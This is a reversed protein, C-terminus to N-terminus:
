STAAAFGLGNPDTTIGKEALQPHSIQAGTMFLVVGGIRALVNAAITRM